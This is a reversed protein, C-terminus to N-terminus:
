NSEDAEAEKKKEEQQKKLHEAILPRWIYIGGLVGVVTVLALQPFSLGRPRPILRM